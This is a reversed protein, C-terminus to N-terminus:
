NVQPTQQKAAYEQRVCNPCIWELGKKELQRGMARTVGVCSGHFWDECKDCCIMFRNNHPERCVCWLKGPDEDGMGDEDEGEEDEVDEEEETEGKAKTCFIIINSFYLYDNNVQHVQHNLFPHPNTILLPPIWSKKNLYM